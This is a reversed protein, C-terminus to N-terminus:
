WSSPATLWQFIMLLTNGAPTHSIHYHYHNLNVDIDSKVTTYSSSLTPNIPIYTTFIHQTSADVM